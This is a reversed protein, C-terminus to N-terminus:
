ARRAAAGGSASGGRSGPWRGTTAPWSSTQGSRSWSGIPCCGLLVFGSNSYRRRTGPEFELPQERVLSMLADVSDFRDPHERFEPLELYDGLGSRHRLLHMITVQGAIEPRLGEVYRGVTDDLQLRGEQVLRLVVAGTFPKVLSGINFRTGPRVPRSPDRQAQGYARHFSVEDNRAALIVGSFRGSKEQQRLTAHLDEWSRIELSAGPGDGIEVGLARILHPEEESVRVSLRLRAGDATRFAVTIETPGAM